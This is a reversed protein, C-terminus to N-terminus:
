DPASGTSALTGFVGLLIVGVLVLGAIVIVAANYEASVAIVMAAVVVCASLLEIVVVVAAPEGALSAGMLLCGFLAATLGVVIEAGYHPSEPSEATLRGILFLFAQTM